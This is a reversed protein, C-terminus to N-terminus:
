IDYRKLEPSPNASTSKNVTARDLSLGRVSTDGSNYTTRRPVAASTIKTSAVPTVKKPVAPRGVTSSQLFLM